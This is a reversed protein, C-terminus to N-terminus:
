SAHSVAEGFDCCWDAHPGSRWCRRGSLDVYHCRSPDAVELVRRGATTLSQLRWPQGLEEVTAATWGQRVLARVGVTVDVDVPNGTTLLSAGDADTRVCRDRIAALLFVDAQTPLLGVFTLRADLARLDDPDWGLRLTKGASATLTGLAVLLQGERLPTPDLRGHIGVGLARLLTALAHSEGINLAM